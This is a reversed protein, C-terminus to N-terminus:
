KGNFFQKNKKWGPVNPDENILTMGYYNDNINKRLYATAEIFGGPGEALHFTDINKNQFDNLLHFINTIEIMKYFSRSLPKIKSVSYKLNPILTHIFEYPNTYKKIFDWSDNNEDIQKKMNNLYLHLTKSVYIEIDEICELKIKLTNNYIEPLIYYSM